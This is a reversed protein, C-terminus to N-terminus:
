IWDWPRNKRRCHCFLFTQRMKVWPSKLIYVSCEMFICFIIHGLLSSCPPDLNSRLPPHYPDYFAKFLEYLSRRVHLTLFCKLNVLVQKKPQEFYHTASLQVFQSLNWLPHHGWSYVCRIKEYIQVFFLFKPDWYLYLSNQTRRLYMTMTLKSHDKWKKLHRQKMKNYQATILYFSSCCTSWFICKFLMSHHIFAAYGSSFFVDCSICKSNIAFMSCNM